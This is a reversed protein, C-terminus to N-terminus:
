NTNSTNSTKPDKPKSHITVSLKLLTLLFSVVNMEKDHGSSCSKLHWHGNRVDMKEMIYLM